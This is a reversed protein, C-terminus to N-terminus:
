IELLGVRFASDLHSKVAIFWLLGMRTHLHCVQNLPVAKILHSLRGPTAIVIRYELSKGALQIADIDCYVEHGGTFLLTSMQQDVTSLGKKVYELYKVLVEHIQVVLERTPGLCIAGVRCVDQSFHASNDNRKSLRLLVEVIPILFAM